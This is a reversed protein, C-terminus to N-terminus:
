RARFSLAELKLPELTMSSKRVLGRSVSGRNAIAVVGAAIMRQAENRINDFANIDRDHQTSCQDCSWMRM